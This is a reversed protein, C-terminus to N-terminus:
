TGRLKEWSYGSNRSTIITQGDGVAIITTADPMGIARLAQSTHSQVPQWEIADASRWVDGNWGAAVVNQADLMRVALLDTNMNRPGQQWDAGGNTTRLIVSKGGAIYANDIDLDGTLYANNEDLVDVAFLKNGQGPLTLERWSLTDDTRFARGSSSVIIGMGSPIFSADELTLSPDLQGSTVTWSKGADTTRLVTGHWGVAVAVDGSVLRVRNLTEGTPSEVPAWTQGSDTSRLINGGSGVAVAVQQNIIAVSNLDARSDVRAEAWTQGTDTSRLITGNWGSIMGLGPGDFSVDTYIQQWPPRSPPAVATTDAPQTDGGLCGTLASALSLLLILFMSIRRM